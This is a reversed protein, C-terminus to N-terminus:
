RIGYMIDEIMGNMSTDVKIFGIIIEKMNLSLTSVYPNVNVAIDLFINYWLCYKRILM